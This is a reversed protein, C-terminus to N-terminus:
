RDVGQFTNGLKLEKRRFLCEIALKCLSPPRREGREWRAVTNPAVGLAKAFEGQTMKLRNRSNKINHM